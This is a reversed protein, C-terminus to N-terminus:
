LYNNCDDYILQNNKWTVCSTLRTNVSCSDCFMDRFADSTGASTSVIMWWLVLIMTFVIIRLSSSINSNDLSLFMKIPIKTLM